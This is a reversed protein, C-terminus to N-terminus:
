NVEISIGLVRKALAAISEKDEEATEKQSPMFLVLPEISEEIEAIFKSSLKDRMSNSAIILGFEGSSYLEQIKKSADEEDTVIFTDDIGILRYGIVLERDGVVALRGSTDAKQKSVQESM